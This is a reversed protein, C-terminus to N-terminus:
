SKQTTREQFYLWMKEDPRCQGFKKVNNKDLKTDPGFIISFRAFCRTYDQKHNKLQEKKFIFGCKKMLAVNDLNKLTTKILSLTQDLNINIFMINIFMHLELKHFIKMQPDDM